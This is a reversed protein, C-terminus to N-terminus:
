VATRHLGEQAVYSQAVAGKCKKKQSIRISGQLLADRRTLPLRRASPSKEASLNGRPKRIPNM